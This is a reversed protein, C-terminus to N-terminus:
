LVQILILVLLPQHPCGKCRVNVRTLYLYPLSWSYQNWIQLLQSVAYAVAAFLITWSPLLRRNIASINTYCHNLHSLISRSSTEPSSSFVITSFLALVKAQWPPYTHCLHGSLGILIKWYCHISRMKLWLPPALSTNSSEGRHLSLFVISVLKLFSQFGKNARPM